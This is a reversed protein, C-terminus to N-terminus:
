VLRHDTRLHAETARLYPLQAQREHWPLASSAVLHPRDAEGLSAPRPIRGDPWRRQTSARSEKRFDTAIAHSWRLSNSAPRGRRPRDAQSQSPEPRRREPVNSVPDVNSRLNTQTRFRQTTMSIPGLKVQSLGKSRLKHIRGSGCKPPSSRTSLAM